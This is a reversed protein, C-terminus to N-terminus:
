LAHGFASEYNQFQDYFCPKEFGGAYVTRLGGDVCNISVENPGLRVIPGLKVHAKHITQVEVRTYRVWLIWLPSWSATIHGSPIKSLPSIFSPYIFYRYFILAFAALLMMLSLMKIDLSRGIAQCIIRNLCFHLSLTGGLDMFQLRPLLLIPGVKEVGKQLLM